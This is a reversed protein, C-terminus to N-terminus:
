KKSYIKAILKPLTLAQVMISFIVIIYTTFLWLDKEPLSKQIALAMAISLGGRLGGWTMLLPTEKPLQSRKRFFWFPVLLAIYRAVLGLVVTILAIYWYVSQINILLVAVGMLVFLFANLLEDVIEWFKDIYEETINSMAIHRSYNGAMLGAVVMALPGSIHLYQAGIYGSTVVALTILLETQYHDISKLLVHMIYGLALGYALGGGAEIGFLKIADFFTVQDVGRNIVEAIVLFVVVGVGDNFLSEGVINNKIREPLNSKSLIGLVAIPDTPSILAGFLLCSWITSEFGFGRLIFYMGGGILMVSLMVSVLAFVTISLKEKKLQTYDTHFSGAFLLYCLMVNLLLDSFGFDGVLSKVTSLANPFIYNLPFLCISFCLAIAMLGITHPLKIFRFNLYSFVASCLILVSILEFTTM